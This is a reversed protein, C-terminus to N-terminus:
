QCGDLWEVVNYLVLVMAEVHLQVLYHGTMYISEVQFRSAQNVAEAPTTEMAASSNYGGNGNWRCQRQGQISIWEKKAYALLSTSEFSPGSKWGNSRRWWINM